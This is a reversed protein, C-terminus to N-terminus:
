TYLHGDYCLQINDDRLFSSAKEKLVTQQLIHQCLLQTLRVNICKIQVLVSNM